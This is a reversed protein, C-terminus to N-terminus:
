EFILVSFSTMMGSLRLLLNMLTLIIMMVDSQGEEAALYRSGQIM